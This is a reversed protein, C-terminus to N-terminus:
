DERAKHFYGIYSATMLNIIIYRVVFHYFVIVFLIVWVGIRFIVYGEDEKFYDHEYNSILNGKTYMATHTLYTYFPNYFQYIDNGITAYAFWSYLFTILTLFMGLTMTTHKLFLILARMTLNVLPIKFYVYKVVSFCIM